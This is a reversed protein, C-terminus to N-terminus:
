LLLVLHINKGVARRIHLRMPCNAYLFTPKENPNSSARPTIAVQNPSNCESMTVHKSYVVLGDIVAASPAAGDDSFLIMM